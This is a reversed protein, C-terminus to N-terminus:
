TVAVIRFGQRSLPLHGLRAIRELPVPAHLAQPAELGMGGREDLGALDHARHVLVGALLRDRDPHARCQAVGVDDGAGVSPMSVDEGLASLGPAHECLQETALGAVVAPAAAGHVDRVEREPDVARVADHAGASRHGAAGGM